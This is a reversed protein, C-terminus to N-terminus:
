LSWHGMRSVQSQRRSHQRRYTQPPGEGARGDHVRGIGQLHPNKPHLHHRHLLHTSHSLHLSMPVSAEQEFGRCLVFNVIMESTTSSCHLHLKGDLNILSIVTDLDVGVLEGIRTVLKTDNEPYVAVHDGSDYRMKSNSIDIEIHMCSRDGGKHLERNVLLGSMFPNKADFPARQNTYSHLRAIEGRYIKEPPFTEDQVELRYQRTSMDEGSAEVGFKECVAPWFRDKWSIFDEEINADDDGMGM